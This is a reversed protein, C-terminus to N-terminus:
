SAARGLHSTIENILGSSEASVLNIVAPDIVKADDELNWVFQAEKDGIIGSIGRCRVERFGYKLIDM